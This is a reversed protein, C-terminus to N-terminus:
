GDMEGVEIELGSVGLEGSVLRPLLLDRTQRLNINKIQLNKVLEFDPHVVNHFASLTEGDPYVTRLAEFKGKSLNIMTAGTSGHQRITERMRVLTLYLFERDTEDELVVANIQQNTQLPVSTISVSGALAGICNVLISNPPLTKNKQSATGLESLYEDAEVCYMNGHMSPTKIFPMYDGYYEPVKKSPTKGTIVNGFDAVRRVEWGEPLIGLESEVMGVGGHGPFRFHVFWERYIAQAIDELIAIRRTNNEILDDYASLIAAIKRQTPLPPFHLPLSRIMELSVYGQAVGGKIGYLADQFIHGGIWYFLYEPLLVSQNPRLIAVSSSIGFQDRERVLYPEGITGIISFVVDNAAPKTLAKSHERFHKAFDQVSIYDVKSLDLGGDKFNKSTLYMVGTDQRKIRAHAGDGAICNDGIRERVWENTVM